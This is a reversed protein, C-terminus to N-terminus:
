DTLGQKRTVADQWEGNRLKRDIQGIVREKIREIHSDFTISKWQCHDCTFTTDAYSVHTGRGRALLATDCRPCFWNMVRISSYDSNWDWRWIIGDLGEFVDQRYAAFKSQQTAAEAKCRLWRIFSRVNISISAVLGLVLFLILWRPLATQQTIFSWIANILRILFWFLSPVAVMLATAAAGVVAIIIGNRLGHKESTDSM